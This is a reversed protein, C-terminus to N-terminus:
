RIDYIHFIMGHAMGPFSGHNGGMARPQPIGTAPMIPQLPKMPELAGLHLRPSGQLGQQQMGKPSLQRNKQGDKKDKRKGHGTKPRCDDNRKVHSDSDEHSLLPKAKAFPDRYELQNIPRDEFAPM